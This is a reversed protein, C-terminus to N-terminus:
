NELRSDLYLRSIMKSLKIRILASYRKDIYKAVTPNLSSAIPACAGIIAVVELLKIRMLSELIILRSYRSERRSLQSTYVGSTLCSAILMYAWIAVGRM